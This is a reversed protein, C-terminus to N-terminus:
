ESRWNRAILQVVSAMGTHLSGEIVERELERCLLLKCGPFEGLSNRQM